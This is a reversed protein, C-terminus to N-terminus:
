NEETKVLHKIVNFRGYASPNKMDFELVDGIKNLGLSRANDRQKRTVSNLSRVLVIKM